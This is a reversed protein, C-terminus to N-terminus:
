RFRPTPTRADCGRSHLHGCVTSSKAILAGSNSRSACHTRMGNEELLRATMGPRETSTPVGRASCSGDKPAAGLRPESGVGALPRRTGARENKLPRLLEPPPWSGNGVPQWSSLHQRWRQCDRARTSCQVCMLADEFGKPPVPQVPVQPQRLGQLTRRESLVQTLAAANEEADEPTKSQCHSTTSPAPKCKQAKQKSGSAAAPAASSSRVRQWVHLMRGAQCSSSRFCQRIQLSFSCGGAPGAPIPSTCGITDASFTASTLESTSSVWSDMSPQLAALDEIRDELLEMEEEASEAEEKVRKLVANPAAPLRRRGATPLSALLSRPALDANPLAAKEEDTDAEIQTRKERSESPEEQPAAESAAGRSLAPEPAERSPENETQASKCVRGPASAVPRAILSPDQIDNSSPPRPLAPPYVLSCGAIRQPEWAGSFAPESCSRGLGRSDAAAAAM